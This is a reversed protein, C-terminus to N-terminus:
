FINTNFHRVKYSQEKADFILMKFSDLRRALIHTAYINIIAPGSLLLYDESTFNKLGEDLKNVVIDTKFIPLNGSTVYELEGYQTAAAFNHNMSNIIYVKSMKYEGGLHKM